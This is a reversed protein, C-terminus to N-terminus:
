TREREEEPLGQDAQGDAHPDSTPSEIVEGEITNSPMSSPLSFLRELRAREEQPLQPEPARLQVIQQKGWQQPDQRELIDIALDPPMPFEADNAQLMINNMRTRVEALPLKSRMKAEQYAHPTPLSVLLDSLHRQEIGALHCSIEDSHGSALGRLFAEVQQPSFTHLAPPNTIM